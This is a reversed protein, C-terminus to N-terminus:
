SQAPRSPSSVIKAVEEAIEDVTFVATNLAKIGSLMPLHEKVEDATINHWLPLIFGDGTPEGIQRNFLGDLEAQTWQKRIFHRSLVVLGFRTGAIGADISRRISRGWEISLEDYWVRIGRAALAEALPRAIEDKDESAHSIFVDTRLFAVSRPAASVLPSEISRFQAERTSVTQRLQAMARAQDRTLDAQYKRRAAVLEKEKTAIRGEVRARAQEADSAKKDERAAEALKMRRTPESSTRSADARAKSAKAHAPGIKASERALDQRLRHLENEKQRVQADNVM